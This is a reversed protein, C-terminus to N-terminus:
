QFATKAGISRLYAIIAPDDQLIAQDLATMKGLEGKDMVENIDANHQHLSKAIDLKGKLIAHYFNSHGEPKGINANASQGLLLNTRGADCNLVALSISSLGEKSVFDLDAGNRMLIDMIKGTSAITAYALNSLGHAHGVNPNAGKSLLSSVTPFDKNLVAVTLASSGKKNTTNIHDDILHTLFYEILSGHKQRVAQILFTDGTNTTHAMDTGTALKEVLPLVGKTIAYNMPVKGLEDELMVNGNHKIMLDLMAMSHDNTSSFCVHIPALKDDDPFNPDAGESLLYDVMGLNGKLAAYYLPTRGSNNPLDVQGGGDVLIKAIALHDNYAADHLDSGWKAASVNTAFFLPLFFFYVIQRFGKKQSAVLNEM